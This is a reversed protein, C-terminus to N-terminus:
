HVAQETLPQSEYTKIRVDPQGGAIKKDANPLFQINQTPNFKFVTMEDANIINDYVYYEAGQNDVLKVDWSGPQVRWMIYYNPPLPSSLANSGWYDESSPSLYIENINISASYNEVRIVGGDATIALTSTEGAKVKMTSSFEFKFLGEGTVVVEKEEASFITKSLEWTKSITEQSELAMTEGSVTIDMGGATQNIIKLTGDDTCGILSLGFVLLLLAILPRM